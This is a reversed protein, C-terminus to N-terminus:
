THATNPTQFPWEQDWTFLIHSTLNHPHKHAQWSAAMSLKQHVRWKKKERRFNQPCPHVLSLWMVLSTGFLTTLQKDSTLHSILSCKQAKVMELKIVQLTFVLLLTRPSKTMDWVKKQLTLRLTPPQLPWLAAEVVSATWSMSMFCWNNNDPAALGHIDVGM